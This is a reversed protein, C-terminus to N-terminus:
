KAGGANERKTKAAASCLTGGVREPDNDGKIHNWIKRVIGIKDPDDPLEIKLNEMEYREAADDNQKPKENM